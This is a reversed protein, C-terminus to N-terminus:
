QLQTSLWHCYYLLCKCVFLVCFLVIFCFVWFPAYTVIPICLLYKSLILCFCVFCVVVYVITCFLVLLIHLFTIFLVAMYAAFRMHNIHRRIILSARNSHGESWRAVSTSM